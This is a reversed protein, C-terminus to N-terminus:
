DVPNKFFKAAKPNWFCKLFVIVSALYGVAFLPWYFYSNYDPESIHRGAICFSIVVIFAAL